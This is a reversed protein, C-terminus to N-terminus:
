SACFIILPVKNAISYDAIIKIKEGVVSGMSGGMFNFDMVGLSARFGNIRADGVVIAENLGSKLRAETLRSSYSKLDNFNMLFEDPDIEKNCNKCKIKELLKKDM